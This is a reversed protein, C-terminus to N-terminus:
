RRGGGVWSRRRLLLWSWGGGCLAERGARGEQRQQCGVVADVGLGVPLERAGLYSGSDPRPMLPDLTSPSLEFLLFLLKKIYTHIYTHIIRERARCRAGGKNRGEM